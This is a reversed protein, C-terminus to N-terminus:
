FLDPVTVLQPESAPGLVEYVGNSKRKWLHHGRISGTSKRLFAGFHARDFGLAKASGVICPGTDVGAEILATIALMAQTNRDETECRKLMARVALIVRYFAMDPLKALAPPPADPMSTTNVTTAGGSHMTM